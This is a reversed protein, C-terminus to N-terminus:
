WSRGVAMSAGDRGVMVSPNWGTQPTESRGGLLLVGAVALGVFGVGFGVTSVGGVTKISHLADTGEQDCIKGPCHDDITSKKGMAMVGAVAGVAIGVVGVGAAVYVPVRNPAAPAASATATPPPATRVTSASPPTKASAAKLAVTVTERAGRALTVTWEQSERGPAEASVVHKGPDIPLAVGFTVAGLSAGDRKVVIGAPPDPVAITLRPIEADLKKKQEGAAKVREAQRGKLEKPIREVFSLFDEYHALATAIKGAGVECEALTFLTGARPDLRQSEALAPCASDYKGAKMEALGQRFLADATAVDQAHAPVSALTVLLLAAWGARRMWRLTDSPPHATCALAPSGFGLRMSSENMSRRTAAVCRLPPVHSPLGILAVDAGQV